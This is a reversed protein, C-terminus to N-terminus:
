GPDPPAVISPVGDAVDVYTPGPPVFGGDARRSSPGALRPVAIWPRPGTRGPLRVAATPWAHVGFGIGAEEVLSALAPDGADVAAGGEDPFAARAGVGAPAAWSLLGRPADPTGLRRRLRRLDEPAFGCADPSRAFRGGPAGSVTALEALGELRVLDLRSADFVPADAPLADFAADLAPLEDRGGPVVLVLRGQRALAAANRTALEPTDGLGGLVVVVPAPGLDALAGDLPAPSPAPGAFAVLRPAAAGRVELTRGKAEVRLGAVEVARDPAPPRTECRVYPHPETVRVLGAPDADCGDCGPTAAVAALVALLRGPGRRGPTTPGDGM